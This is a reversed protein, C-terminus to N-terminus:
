LHCFCKGIIEQTNQRRKGATIQLNTHTCGNEKLYDLVVRKTHTSLPTDTPNQKSIDPKIEPEM